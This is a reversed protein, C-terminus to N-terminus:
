PKESRPFVNRLLVKQLTQVHRKALLFVTKILNKLGFVKKYGQEFLQVGLHCFFPHTLSMCCSSAAKIQLIPITCLAKEFSRWM